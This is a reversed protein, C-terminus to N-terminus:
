APALLRARFEIISTRAEETQLGQWWAALAADAQRSTEM